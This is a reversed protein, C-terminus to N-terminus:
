PNKKIGSTKLERKFYEYLIAFPIVTIVIVLTNIFFNGTISHYGIIKLFRQSVLLILPHMLYINYSSMDIQNVIKRITSNDTQYFVTLGYVFLISIINFFLWTLKITFGDIEMKLVQYQYFQNAFYGVILLYVLLLYGKQSEIYNKVTLRNGAFYCGMAFFFVYQLFFRDVYRFYIFKMFLINVILILGLLLNNDFRRFLNLFVGFLIYFQVILLVFYLHYVMDALMLKRLFFEWSFTYYGAMIFFGYYILTWVCYPILIGSLRKKIFNYYGFEQKHQYNYYLVFGSIFIFLPVAFQLTRNILTFFLIHISGETLQTVPDASTHILIVALSGIVRLYKIEEIKEKM